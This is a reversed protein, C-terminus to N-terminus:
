EGYESDLEVFVILVEETEHRAQKRIVLKGHTYANKEDWTSCSVYNACLFENLPRYERFMKCHQMLPLFREQLVQSRLRFRPEGLSFLFPLLTYNRPTRKVNMKEWQKSGVWGLLCGWGM